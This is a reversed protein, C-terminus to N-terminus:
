FIEGKKRKLLYIFFPTGALAAVVGVPIEIPSAATRAVTDILILLLAGGLAAGPILSRHDPGVLLRLIHPVMLGIFGIMGSVAVSAGVLVSALLFLVRKTHEPDIGLHQASEEGQALVNLDRAYYWA